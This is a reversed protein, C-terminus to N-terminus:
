PIIKQWIEDITPFAKRPFTGGTKFFFVEIPNSKSLPSALSLRDVVSYFEEVKIYRRILALTHLLGARTMFEIYDRRVNDYATSFDATTDGSVKYDRYYQRYYEEVGVSDIRMLNNLHSLLSLAYLKLSWKQMQEKVVAASAFGERSAERILLVDRLMRWVYGEVSRIFHSKSDVSIDFNASRLDYWDFFEGLTVTAGNYKILPVSRRNRVESASIPGAETMLLRSLNWSNFKNKPLYQSAINGCLLNFANRQITPNVSRLLRNVYDDSAIDAEHQRIEEEFQRSLNAREYDGVIPSYVIQDVKFVYYGDPGKIPLSVDGEKALEMIRYIEPSTIELHFYDATRRFDHLSDQRDYLSDFGILRLKNEISDIGELTKAYLWRYSVQREFNNLAEEIQQKSIRITDWIQKRYLQETILDGWIANLEPTIEQRATTDKPGVGFRPESNKWRYLYVLCPLSDRAAVSFMAEDTMADLLAHRPNAAKLFFSPGLYYNLVFDKATLNVDGIRAVVISDLVPDSMSNFKISDAISKGDDHGSLFYLNTFLALLIVLLNL